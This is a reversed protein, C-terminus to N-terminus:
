RETIKSIIPRDNIPRYNARGCRTQRRRVPIIVSNGGHRSSTANFPCVSPTQLCFQSIQLVLHSSLRVYYNMDMTAAM